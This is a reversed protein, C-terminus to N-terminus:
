LAASLLEARLKEQLRVFTENSFRVAASPYKYQYFGDDFQIHTKDYWYQFAVDNPYEDLDEQLEEILKWEERFRGERRDYLLNEKIYNITEEIDVVDRNAIKCLIQDPRTSLLFEEVSENERLSFWYAFNGFDTVATFIGSRDLLFIGWGEGDVSPVSYRFASAKAM